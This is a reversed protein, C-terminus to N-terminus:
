DLMRRVDRLFQKGYALYLKTGYLHVSTGTLNRLSHNPYSFQFQKSYLIKPLTVMKISNIRGALSLPLTSWRNLNEKIQGLASKFNNQFLDKYRSTVSVGLYTMPGETTRFPYSGFSRNQALVNIPFLVSKTLNIKYGSSTGFQSITDLCEPISTEPDSIFM